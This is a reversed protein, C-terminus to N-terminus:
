SFSLCTLPPSDQCSKPGGVGAGAVRPHGGTSSSARSPGASGTASPPRSCTSWSSASPGGRCESVPRSSRQWGSCPPSHRRRTPPIWRTPIKRPAPWLFSVCLHAPTGLGPLTQGEAPALPGGSSPQTSLVPSSPSGQPQGVQPPFSCPLASAETSEPIGGRTVWTPAGAALTAWPWPHRVAPSHSSGRRWWWRPCPVAARSCPCWRTTPATGALCLHGRLASGAHGSRVALRRVGTDQQHLGCLSAVPRSSALARGRGLTLRRQLLLELGLALQVSTPVPPMM